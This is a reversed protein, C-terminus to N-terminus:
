YLIVREPSIKFLAWRDNNLEVQKSEREPMNSRKGHAVPFFFSMFMIVSM